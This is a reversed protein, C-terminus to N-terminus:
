FIFPILVRRSKPYDPFRELYWRHTAIARPVLNAASIAFIFVGAPSWTFIAFGIWAMLEAFYSPSSVYRFLGGHPIRYRKIGAAVEDRSRLNRVIADSHVNLALGSFYIGIGIIFRPDDLWSDPYSGFESFYSGSLYGHLSTVVWGSVVVLLGFSSKSGRAVRMLAPFIFGRNAYHICWVGAFIMPVLDGSNPGQSFFYLFSLTAPLEMLFWGLRPDVSVGYRPSAFRGYPSQIVRAAVVVMGVLVFALFLITDYTPDGTFWSM